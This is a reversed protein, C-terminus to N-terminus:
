EGVDTMMVGLSLSRQAVHTVREACGAIVFRLQLLVTM